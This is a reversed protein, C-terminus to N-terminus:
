WISLLKEVFEAEGPLIVAGVVEFWVVLEPVLLMFLQEFMFSDIAITLHCSGAVMLGLRQRLPDSTLPVAIVLVFHQWISLLKQVIEAELPFIVAGVVEFWVVLEPVLLMFLQHLKFSDIAITLHWGLVM